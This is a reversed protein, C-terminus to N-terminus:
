GLVIVGRPGRNSPYGTGKCVIICKNRLRARFVKQWPHTTANKSHFQDDLIVLQHIVFSLISQIASVALKEDKAHRGHAQKRM